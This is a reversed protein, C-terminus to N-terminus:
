LCHGVEVEWLTTKEPSSAHTHLLSHLPPPPPRKKTGTAWILPAESHLVLAVTAMGAGSDPGAAM